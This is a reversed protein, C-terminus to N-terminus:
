KWGWSLVDPMLSAEFSVAEVPESDGSSDSYMKVIKKGLESPGTCRLGSESDSLQQSGPKFSM